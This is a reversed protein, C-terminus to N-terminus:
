ISILTSRAGAQANLDNLADATELAETLLTKAQEAPRMTIFMAGALAIQLEMRLRMNATVHPELSLLARECRERCESMLSLHRWVPAYAATLDFALRRTEPRPSPGTSRRAFTTSRESMVRWTRMRYLRDPAERRHHSSIAFICHMTSRPSTPRPTSPLSRSRTPVSRKWCLGAPAAARNTWRWGHNQSSIPSATWCRRRM